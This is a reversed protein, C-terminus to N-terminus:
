LEHIGLINKYRATYRRGQPFANNSRRQCFQQLGPSVPGSDLFKIRIDVDIGSREIRIFVPLTKYGIVAGFSIKVQPM